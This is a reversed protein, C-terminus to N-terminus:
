KDIHRLRERGVLMLLGLAGAAAILLGTTPDTSGPLLGDTGTPIGIPPTGLGGIRQFVMRATGNNLFTGATAEGEVNSVVTTLLPEGTESAITLQYNGAPLDRTLAGGPAIAQREVSEGDGIPELTALVTESTPNRLSIRGDGAALPSLDDEFSSLRVGGAGDSSVVISQPEGSLQITQALLPEDTRDAALDAPNDTQPYLGLQYSGPDLALPGAIQGPAFGAALLEGNLYTDVPTNPVGHVFELGAESVPTAPIDPPEPLTTPASSTTTTSTTTTSTTSSTTSSSTAPESDTTTSGTTPVTTDTTTTDTTTVTATTTPGSGDDTGTTAAWLGFGIVGVLGAGVLWPLIKGISSRGATTTTATATAAAAPAEAVAAAAPTVTEAAPAALLPSDSFAMPTYRRMADGGAEQLRQAFAAASPIRDEVDEATADAVVAAIEAPTNPDGATGAELLKGLSYVDGPVTPVGSTRVEPAMVLGDEPTGFLSLGMGSVALESGAVVVDTPQLAGHRLGLSHGKDVALAAGYAVGAGENWPPPTRFDLREQFRPADTRLSIAQLSEDEAATISVVPVLGSTDRDETPATGILRDIHEESWRGAPVTQMTVPTRDDPTGAMPAAIAESREYEFWPAVGRVDSLELETGGKVEREM